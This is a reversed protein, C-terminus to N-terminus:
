SGAVAHAGAAYGGAWERRRRWVATWVAASDRRGALRTAMARTLPWLMLLARGPARQWAPFHRDVLTIKAKLLRVMKDTRVTESAGGYHIVTAEPTIRPQAGLRRARLCLDAEEGYMFYSLDFGGLQEWLRRPLLFFCGSVMGVAREGDRQWGGYAEPNFLESRPFLGTLGTARCFVSWLTQEGWCSSPNLSRDANLTRGGWIQAAPTRRAFALLRDIAGDLVVTDPNLLLIYEGRAHRAAINNAGAFGHNRTEALVSFGPTGQPWAAAIAEASGDTSANDIVILEFPERTEAFVSALCDLTMQRTNYSVVVISVAPVAAAHAATSTESESISNMPMEPM